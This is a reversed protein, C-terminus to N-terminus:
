GPMQSLRRHASELKTKLSASDFPKVIFDTVGEKVAELVNGKESETTAIIFPLHAYRAEARVKRLLEIGTCSPMNWDSLILRIPPTIQKLANWAVNGDPAELVDAFGLQNFSQKMLERMSAFDDVVLIRTKLHFM